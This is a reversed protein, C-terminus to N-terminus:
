LVADLASKKANKVAPVNKVVEKRSAKKAAAKNRILTARDEIAASKYPLPEQFIELDDEKDTLPGDFGRLEDPLPAYDGGFLKEISTKQDEHLHALGNGYIEHLREREDIPDVDAYGAHELSIVGDDGHLRRLVVIEPVTLGRKQVEQELMGGIRITANFVQMM